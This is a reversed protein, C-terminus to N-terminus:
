TSLTKAVTSLRSDIVTKEGFDVTPRFAIKLTSQQDFLSKRQLELGQHRSGKEGKTEYGM